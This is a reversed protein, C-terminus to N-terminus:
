PQPREPLDDPPGAPVDVPPAPVVPPSGPADPPGPPVDVPPGSPPSPSGPADAPPDAPVTPHGPDANGINHALGVLEETDVQGVNTSLYRLLEAVAQRTQQSPENEASEVSVAAAELAVAAKGASEDSPEDSVEPIVEAAQNLGIAIEGAEFLAEIEAVREAGGGDNVGIAELARDIGYLTDGPKAGDSAWAVGTTSGILTAASVAAVAGRRRWFSVRVTSPRPVNNSPRLSSPLDSRDAGTGASGVTSTAGWVHMALTAEDVRPTGMDRLQAILPAVDDLEPDPASGDLLRDVAEDSLRAFRKMDGGSDDRFTM